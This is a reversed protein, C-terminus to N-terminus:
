LLNKYKALMAVGLTAGAMLLGAIGYTLLSSTEKNNTQKASKKKEDSPSSMMKQYMKKEKEYQAKHKAQAKALENKVENNDKALNHAKSLCIVADQTEGLHMLAKGKIFLAKMHSDEIQLVENLSTLAKKYDTQKFSSLALNMLLSKKLESFKELDTQEEDSKLNELDFYKLGKKYSSAALHYDQRNFHFNGRLKKAESLSLREVPEMLAFDTVDKFDKLHITYSLTSNGPIDPKKGLAGYAHRPETIMECKENKSMLSVVLDIASIVDGDGLIFSLEENKEVITTTDKLCAEYSITCMQGSSPRWDRGMLEEGYQITKKLLSDGGLPKEFVEDELKRNPEEKTKEAEVKDLEVKEYEEDENNTNECQKKEIIEMSNNPAYEDTNEKSDVAKSEEAGLDVCSDTLYSDKNKNKEENNIIENEENTPEDRLEQSTILSKNLEMIQNQLDESNRLDDGLDVCSNNMNKQDDKNKEVKEDTEQNEDEDNKKLEYTSEILDNNTSSIMSLHENTNMESGLVQSKTIEIMSNTISNYPTVNIDVPEDPDESKEVIESEDVVESKDIVETESRENNANEEIDKNKEATESKEEKTDDAETKEEENESVVTKSKRENSEANNHEVLDISTDNPPLPSSPAATVQHSKDEYEKQTNELNNSEEM